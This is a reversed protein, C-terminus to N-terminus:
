RIYHGFIIDIRNHGLCRSVKLAVDRDLDKSQLRGELPPLPRGSWHEYLDQAFKRRYSHIDLLGSIRSFVHEDPLRGQVQSLVGEERGPYVPVERVKGGKGHRVHVVLQQDGPRTYVERVYLDRLEERRLGSALCFNIVHRWNDLNIQRDRKAPRRSRKIDQQRRPPLTISDTLDRDQFFMRLASRYTTLTWASYKPQQLYELLYLCALEDSQEDIRALDRVNHQQRCWEIFRMVIKQYGRRSEFSHIRGDSYGFASEGRAVAEAKAVARKEHDAMLSDLRQIAAYKAGPRKGM